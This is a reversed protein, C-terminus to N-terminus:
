ATSTNPIGLPLLELQEVDRLSAVLLLALASILLASSKSSTSCPAADCGGVVDPTTPLCSQLVEM